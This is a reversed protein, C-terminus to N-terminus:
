WHMLIDSWLTVTWCVARSIKSIYFESYLILPLNYMWYYVNKVNDFPAKVSKSFRAIEEWQLETIQRNNIDRSTDVGILACQTVQWTTYRPWSNRFYIFNTVVGFWAISDTPQSVKFPKQSVHWWLSLDQARKEDYVCSSILPSLAIKPSFQGLKLQWTAKEGLDGCSIKLILISINIQFCNSLNKPCFNDRPLSDCPLSDGM